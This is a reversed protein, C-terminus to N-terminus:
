EQLDPVVYHAYNTTYHLTNILLFIYYESLSAYLNVLIFDVSMPFFCLTIFYVLKEFYCLIEKVSGDFSLYQKKVYM